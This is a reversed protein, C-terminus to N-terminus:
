LLCRKKTQKNITPLNYTFRQFFKTQDNFDRYISVIVTFRDKSNSLHWNKYEYVITCFHLNYNGELANIKIYYRFEKFINRLILLKNKPEEAIITNICGFMNSKLIEQHYKAYNEQASSKLNIKFKLNDNQKLLQGTAHILSHCHILTYNPDFYLTSYFYFKGIVIDRYM